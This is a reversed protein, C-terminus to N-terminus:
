GKFLANIRRNIVAQVADPDDPGLGIFQRVPMGDQGLQHKIGYPARTQDFTIARIGEGKKYAHLSHFLTGTAFLTDGGTVKKGNSMTFGGAKRIKASRSEPWLSGDPNQTKRFRTRVRNLVVAQAADLAKEPDILNKLLSKRVGLSGPRADFKLTLVLSM